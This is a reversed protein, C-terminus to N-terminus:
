AGRALPRGNVNVKENDTFAVDDHPDFLSGNRWNVHALKLAKDDLSQGLNILSPHITGSGTVRSHTSVESGTVSANDGQDRTGSGLAAGSVVM